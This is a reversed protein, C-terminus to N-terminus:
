DQVDVQEDADIMQPAIEDEAEEVSIAVKKGGRNIVVCKKLDYGPQIQSKSRRMDDVAQRWEQRLRKGEEM